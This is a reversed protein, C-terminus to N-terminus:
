LEEKPVGVQVLLVLGAWGGPKKPRFFLQERLSAFFALSLFSLRANKADKRRQTLRKGV